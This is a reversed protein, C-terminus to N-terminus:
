PTGWKTKLYAEVANRNGTSLNSDYCLVECLYGDLDGVNADGGLDLGGTISNQGPNGSIASTGDLWLQQLSSTFLSVHVHAATTATPGGQIGSFSTNCYQRFTSGSGDNILSQRNTEGGFLHGGSPATDWKAAVIIMNPMTPSFGACVMLNPATFDLVNLGNQTRTGTTPQKTGTGQVMTRGNGSLDAWASVKGASATISGANSADYWASLGAITAPTMGWKNLLYNEITQRDTTGLPSNYILMEGLWGDYSTSGNVVSTDGGVALGAFAGSGTNLTGGYQVGNEYFASSAGNYVLSYVKAGPQVVRPIGTTSAALTWTAGSADVYLLPRNGTSGGDFPRTFAAHTDSLGVYFVTAPLATTPTTLRALIDGSGDFDLVNLGNWTRAATDPQQVGTAQTLHYGNGTKDNWQSVNGGSSTISAADSADYWAVCGAVGAPGGGGAAHTVTLDGRASAANPATIPTTM